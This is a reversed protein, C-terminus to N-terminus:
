CESAPGTTYEVVYGPLREEAFEFVVRDFGDNRAARVAKVRVPPSEDRKKETNATTWDVAPAPLDPSPAPPLARGLAQQQQPPPAAAAQPESKKCAASACALALVLLKHNM